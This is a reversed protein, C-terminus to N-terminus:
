APALSDAELLLGVGEALARDSRPAASWTDQLDSSLPLSFLRGLVVTDETISIHQHYVLRFPMKSERHAKSLRAACDFNMRQFAWPLHVVGASARKALKAAVYRAMLKSIPTYSLAGAEIKARVRKNMPDALLRLAADVLVRAGGSISTDLANIEGLYGFHRRIVGVDDRKTELTLREEHVCGLRTLAQVAAADDRYFCESLLVGM